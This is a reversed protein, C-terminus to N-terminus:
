KGLAEAAKHEKEDLLTIIKIINMELQNISGDNILKFDAKQSLDMESRHTNLAEVNPRSIYIISGGRAKIADIENDFRVDSIVYKKQENVNRFLQNVWFNPDVKDRIVETGFVQLLRRIEPFDKKAKDYGFLEIVDKYRWSGHIRPNLIEMMSRLADAFAIETYGFRTLIDASTSKGSQAFGHLGILNM